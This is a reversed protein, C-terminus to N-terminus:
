SRRTFPVINTKQEPQEVISALLVDLVCNTIITAASEARETKVARGIVSSCHCVVILAAEHRDLGELDAIADLFSDILRSADM